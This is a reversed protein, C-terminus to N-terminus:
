CGNLADPSVTVEGVLVRQVDAEDMMWSEIM